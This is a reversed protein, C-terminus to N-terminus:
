DMEWTIRGRKLLAAAVCCLHRNFTINNNTLFDSLAWPGYEVETVGQIIHLATEQDETEPPVLYIDMKHEGSSHGAANTHAYAHVSFIYHGMLGPEAQYFRTNQTNYFEVGFLGIKRTAHKQM